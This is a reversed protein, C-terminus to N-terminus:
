EAKKRRLLFWLAFLVAAGLLLLLPRSADGTPVAKKLVTLVAEESIVSSRNRDTVTCRYKWGDMGAHTGELLLTDETGKLDQWGLSEGMWVQWQYQYPSVGGAARIMFEANEGELVTQSQPQVIIRLPDEENLRVTFTNDLLSWEELGIGRITVEVEKAGSGDDLASVPFDITHTRGHSLSDPDYPLDLYGPDKRGDYRLECYLRISTLQSSDNSIYVSIRREGEPTVYVRHDVDLNQLSYDLLAPDPAKLGTAYRFGGESSQLLPQSLEMTGQSSRSWTLRQSAAFSQPMLGHEVALSKLQDTNATYETLDFQLRYTATEQWSAPSKMLMTFAAVQGPLIESATLDVKKTEDRYETRSSFTRVVQRIEWYSQTETGFGVNERWIADKGKIDEEPKDGELHLLNNEPNETDCRVTEVLHVSGDRGVTSETLTFGRISLNGNNVMRILVTDNEGVGIVDHDLVVADLDMAAVLKLPFSWIATDTVYYGKRNTLLIQGITQDAPAEFQALVFDDSAISADPDYAVAKLRYVNRTKDDKKQGVEMWYLYVTSGIREVSFGAGPLTLDLDTLRYTPLRTGTPHEIRAAHLHYLIKGSDLTEETLSFVHDLSGDQFVRYYPINKEDLLVSPYRSQYCLQRNGATKDSDKLYYYSNAIGYSDPSTGAQIMEGERPVVGMDGSYRQVLQSAFFSDTKTTLSIPMLCTISAVNNGIAMSAYLESQKKEFSFQGMVTSTMHEFVMNKLDEPKGQMPYAYLMHWNALGNTYPQRGTLEGMEPIPLTATLGHHGDPIFGLVYMSPTGSIRIEEETSASADACVAFLVHLDGYVKQITADSISVKRIDFSLDDQYFLGVNKEAFIKDTERIFSQSGGDTFVNERDLILSKRDSADQLAAEFSGSNGTDLNLWLVRSRKNTGAKKGIYFAYIEGGIEEIKVDTSRNWDADRVKEAEAILDPYDDASLPLSEQPEEDAAASPLFLESFTRSLSASAKPWEGDYLEYDPSDWISFKAHWFVAELLLYFGFGASIRLHTFKSGKLEFLFSLYGYGNVTLSLLGKVGFGVFANVGVRLLITLGSFEPSFGTHQIVEEDLNAKSNVAITGGVMGYVALSATFSVGYTLPIPCPPFLQTGTFSIELSAVVGFVGALNKSTWTNQDESHEVRYVIGFVPGITGKINGLKVGGERDGNNYQYVGSAVKKLATATDKFSANLVKKIEPSDFGEKNLLPGKKDGFGGPDIGLIISTSGDLAVSIRPIFAAFPVDLGVSGNTFVKGGSMPFNFNFLNGTGGFFSSLLSANIIPQEVASAEAQLQTPVIKVITGKSLDPSGETFSKTLDAADTLVLQVLLKKSESTEQTGKKWTFEAGGPRLKRRWENNIKLTASSHPAVQFDGKDSSDSSMSRYYQKGDIHQYALMVQLRSDTPNEVHVTIPVSRENHNNILAPYEAALCEHDDFSVGSLYPTGDDKVLHVIYGVGKDAKIRDAIFTRYGEATVKVSFAIEDDKKRFGSLPVNVAGDEGTTGSFSAKPNEESYVDTVTVSAGSFWKDDPGKVCVSVTKDDQVRLDTGQTSDALASSVPSLRGLLTNRTPFRASISAKAVVTVPDEASLVRAAWQCLELDSDSGPVRVFLRLQADLWAEDAGAEQAIETRVARISAVAERIQRTHYRTEYDSLSGGQLLSSRGEIISSRSVLTLKWHELKMRLSEARRFITHMQDPYDAWAGSTLERYKEPYNRELHHLALELDECDTELTHIKEELLENLYEVLQRATLNEPSGSGAHWTSVDAGYGTLASAATLEMATLASGEALAAVPIAQFALIMAMLVTIIKQLKM